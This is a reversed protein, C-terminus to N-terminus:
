RAEPSRADKKRRIDWATNWHEAVPAFGQDHLRKGFDPMHGAGYFIALRKRGRGIERALVKMAFENRGSLIASGKGDASQNLGAMLDEMQGMQQGLLFKLQQGRDQSALAFLVSFPNLGANPDASQRRQEELAAKLLLGFISEGRETQLSAFTEPDLDAHIFNTKGYDIRDLQFDLELLTKMAIQLQSVPHETGVKKTPDTERDRIMEYLVADYSEFSTQLKDFYAGDGVHVVSILSVMVGDATRQYTKVATEVRGEDRGTKAFRIFEKTFGITAVGDAAVGSWTM